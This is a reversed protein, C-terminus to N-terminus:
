TLALLEGRIIVAQTMRAADPGRTMHGSAMMLRGPPVAPRFNTWLRGYRLASAVVRALRGRDVRWWLAVLRLLLGLVAESASVLRGLWASEPSRPWRPLVTAPAAPQRGMQDPSTPFVPPEVAVAIDVDGGDLVRHALEHCYTYDHVLRRLDQRGFGAAVSVAAFKGLHRRLVQDLDALTNERAHPQGRYPKVEVVMLRRAGSSAAAAEFALDSVIPIIGEAYRWTPL